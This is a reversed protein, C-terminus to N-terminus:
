IGDLFFELTYNTHCVQVFNRFFSFHVSSFFFPFGFIQGSNTRKYKFPWTQHARERDRSGNLIASKRQLRINSGCWNSVVVTNVDCARVSNDCRFFFCVFYLLLLNPITLFVIMFLLLFSEIHSNYICIFHIRGVCGVYMCLSISKDDKGKKMRM